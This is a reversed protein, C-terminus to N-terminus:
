GGDFGANLNVPDHSGVPKTKWNQYYLIGHEAIFTAEIENQLAHDLEEKFIQEIAKNINGCERRYNSTFSKQGPIDMMALTDAVSEVGNGTHLISMFQKKTDNEGDVPVCYIM